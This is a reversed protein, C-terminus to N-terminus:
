SIASANLWIVYILLTPLSSMQPTTTNETELKIEERGEAAQSQAGKLDNLAKYDGRYPFECFIVWVTKCKFGGPFLPLASMDAKVTM